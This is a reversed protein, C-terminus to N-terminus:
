LGNLDKIVVIEIYSTTPVTLKTGGSFILQFEGNYKGSTDTDGNTWAYQITGGTMCVIDANSSSIKLNGTEDSMTFTCATLASLNYPIIENFEGRTKVNVRLYPLTDNRKIAFPKGNNM